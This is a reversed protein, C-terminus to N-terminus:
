VPPVARAPAHQSLIRYYTRRSIAFERLIQKLPVGADRAAIIEQVPRRTYPQPIYLLEGGYQQQLYRVIPAAVDMQLAIMQGKIPRVPPLAAAEIGEIQRLWAGAALVVADAAIQTGDALTVGTARGGASLVQRVATNERVTVGAKDAAARLAAALRRNEVQHDEPSAVAGALRSGLHPERRRAEAATIWSVPLGLKKQFELDHMLRSQDDATLAVVLTGERRLEVDIGTAELLEAAFGPWLAQSARGLAVLAEEGPEAEACAALMGAAAHSAGRGSAGRDFVTVRAGAQALRWAIGLGVVGAGIVAVHMTESNRKSAAM